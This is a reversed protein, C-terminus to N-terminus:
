KQWIGNLLFCDKGLLPEGILYIYILTKHLMM